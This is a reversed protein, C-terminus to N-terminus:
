ADVVSGKMSELDACLACSDACGYLRSTRMLLGTEGFWVVYGRKKLSAVLRKITAQVDWQDSPVPFCSLEARVSGSFLSLRVCM